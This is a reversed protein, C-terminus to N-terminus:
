RFPPMQPHSPAQYKPAPVRMAQQSRRFEPIFGELRDKVGILQEESVYFRESLIGFPGRIIKIKSQGQHNRGIMLKAGGNVLKCIREVEPDSM